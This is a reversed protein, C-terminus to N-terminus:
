FINDLIIRFIEISPFDDFKLLVLNFETYFNNKLLRNFFNVFKMLNETKVSLFHIKDRM